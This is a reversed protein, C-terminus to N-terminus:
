NVLGWLLAKNASIPEGTLFMERARREGIVLPLWHPGGAAAPLGVKTEVQIFKAHDAAIALDCALNWENGGGAVMGNIRAISPKGLQRLATHAEILAARWKLFAAANAIHEESHQQVDGGSSFARDGAGTLVLVATADDSACDRFAAAMERLTHDTYANYVSPRNITVRAMWDQKTYVIDTFPPSLSSDIGANEGESRRRKEGDDAATERNEEPEDRRGRRSEIALVATIAGALKARCQEPTPASVHIEPVDPVYGHYSLGDPAREIQSRELFFETLM